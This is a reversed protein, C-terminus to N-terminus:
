QTPEQTEDFRVTESNSSSDELGELFQKYEAESIKGNKLNFEILRKDFQIDHIKQKLGM